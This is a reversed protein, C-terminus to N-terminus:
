QEKDPQQVALADDPRTAEDGKEAKKGKGTGASEKEAVQARKVAAFEKEAARRAAEDQKAQKATEATDELAGSALLQKVDHPHLVGDPIEEGSQFERRQGDVMAVVAILAILAM